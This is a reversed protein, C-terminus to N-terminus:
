NIVPSTKQLGSALGTLGHMGLTACNLRAAKGRFPALATIFNELEKPMEENDGQLWAQTWPLLKKLWERNRGRVVGMLISTSAICLACGQGSFGCDALTNAQWLGWIQLEDGCLPNNALCSVADAPAPGWGQPERAHMLLDASYPM